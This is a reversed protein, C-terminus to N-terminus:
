KEENETWLILILLKIKIEGRIEVPHSPVIPGQYIHFQEGNLDGSVEVFRKRRSKSCLDTCGFSNDSLSCVKIVAHIYIPTQSDLFSFAKFIFRKSKPDSDTEIFKLTSDVICGEKVLDYSLNGEEETESDKAQIRVVGLSQDPDASDLTVQMNIDANLTSQFPFHKSNNRLKKLMHLADSCPFDPGGDSNLGFRIPFDLKEMWAFEHSVKTYTQKQFKRMWPDGDGWVGEDLCTKKM